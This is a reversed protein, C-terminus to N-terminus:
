PNCVKIFREAWETYQVNADEQYQQQLEEYKESVLADNATEEWGMLSSTGVYYVVCAGSTSDLLTVDGMTRSSDYCWERWAPILKGKELNQYLGGSVSTDESYRDALDAFAQETKNETEEWEQLVKEAADHAAQQTEYKDTTLVVQRLNVTYSEDKKPGSLLLCVSIVGNEKSNVMKSDGPQADGSFMWESMEDGSTYAGDEIYLSSVQTQLEDESLTTNEKYYAYVWDEFEEQTTCRRLERALSEADGSQMATEDSDDYSFAFQMFDCVQMSKPDEEYYAEMEEESVSISNKKQQHFEDAILYLELAHKADNQTVGDPLTSLDMSELMSEASKSFDTDSQYEENQAALNFALVNEAYSLASDVFYAEWTMEDNYNQESLPLAEDPMSVTSATNSSATEIYTNYIQWAYFSIEAANLTQGETKVVSICHMMPKYKITAVVAGVLIAAAAACSVTTIVIKRVKKKKRELNAAARRQEKRKQVMYEQKNSKKKKSAM